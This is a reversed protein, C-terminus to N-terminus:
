TKAKDRFSLPIDTCLFLSLLIERVKKAPRPPSPLASGDHPHKRYLGEAHRLAILVGFVWRVDQVALHLAAKGVDDEVAHAWMYLMIVIMFVGNEGVHGELASWEALTMADITKRGNPWPNGIVRWDPQLSLWYVCM